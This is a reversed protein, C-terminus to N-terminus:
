KALTLGEVEAGIRPTVPAVNITEYGMTHGELAFFLIDCKAPRMRWEPRNTISSGRSSSIIAAPLCIGNGTGLGFTASSTSTLLCSCPLTSEASSSQRRCTQVRLGAGGSQALPEPISQPLLDPGGTAAM